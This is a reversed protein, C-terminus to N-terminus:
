PFLREGGGGGESEEGKFSPRWHLNAAKALSCKNCQQAGSLTAGSARACIAALCLLCGVRQALQVQAGESWRIKARSSTCGSHTGVRELQTAAFGVSCLRM